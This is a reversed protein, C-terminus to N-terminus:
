DVDGGKTRYFAKVIEVAQKIDENTAHANVDFMMRLGPKDHIAQLIDEDDSISETSDLLQSKRVNFIKCLEEIKGMRPLKEGKCWFTVTSKSVNMRNALDIQSMNNERILRSLNVGFIKKQEAETM